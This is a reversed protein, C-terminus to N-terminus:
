SGFAVLTGRSEISLSPSHSTRKALPGMAVSAMTGCEGALQVGLKLLLVKMIDILCHRLNSVVDHSRM